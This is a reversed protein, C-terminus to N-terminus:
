RRLAALSTVDFKKVRWDARVFLHSHRAFERMKAGPDKPTLFHSVYPLADPNVPVRQFLHHPLIAARLGDAAVGQILSRSCLFRNTGLGL